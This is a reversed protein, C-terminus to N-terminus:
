GRSDRKGSKMSEVSGASRRWVAALASGFISHVSASIAAPVDVLTGPFNTRALEVGLGSNQMGVEISITRAAAREASAATGSERAGPRGLGYGVGFGIAHLTM